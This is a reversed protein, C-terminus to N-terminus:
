ILVDWHLHWKIPLHQLSVIWLISFVFNYYSFSLEFSNYTRCTTIGYLFNCAHFFRPMIIGHMFNDHMSIEYKYAHLNQRQRSKRVGSINMPLQATCLTMCPVKVWSFIHAFTENEHIFIFNEHMFGKTHSFPPFIFTKKVSLLMLVVYSHLTNIKDRWWCPIANQIIMTNKLIIDTYLESPAMLFMIEFLIQKIVIAPM